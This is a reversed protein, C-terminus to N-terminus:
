TSARTRARVQRLALWRGLRMRKQLRIPTFGATPSATARSPTDIKLKDVFRQLAALENDQFFHARLRAIGPELEVLNDASSSLLRAREEVRRVFTGLDGVAIEEFNPSAWYERGGGGHYGIVYNGCLAAEVPPLGLGELGSFSMFIQSEKLLAAVEAENMGDIGRIEWNTPLRKKLAFVVAAAHAGNKRPMYTILDRKKRDASFVSDDVSCFVRVIRGTLHPYHLSILSSTDESISLIASANQYAYDVDADTCGGDRDRLYYGNQVFISYKLGSPALIRALQAAKIEPLVLHDTPRLDRDSILHAAHKVWPYEYGRRDHMIASSIVGSNNLRSSHDYIVKVGGAHENTRPSTCFYVLRM